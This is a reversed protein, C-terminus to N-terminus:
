GRAGKLDIVRLRDGLAARLDPLDFRRLVDPVFCSLPWDYLEAEAVDQYSTLAGKLTVTSVRPSFQAAFLAPFTGWGLGALRVEHHGYRGLWDLTARVDHTKGGVYPRDLMLAHIAYFYDSGYPELFSDEGCTNPRSEGVGRVDLAYFAAEPHAEALERVLAESRLEEDASHHSVYLVAPSGDQPPRSLLREDSLRTLVIEIGPETELVYQAFFEKPYGRPAINRLIRAYPPHEREPLKLADRLAETLPPGALRRGGVQARATEATFAFIPKSGEKAVQGSATAQLSADTEITLPPEAHGEAVGTWRNFWGYMAERNEQSYGHYTPGIFLSVREEAGLLRWLKKLRNLAEELGRADFYDREKGLLIVPKPALAALFDEHDLGLAIARPPCQETDAPLENELNRRFETVFCSPAAMTWRSDLGALWTTETGGGSNGTVGVHRPDVEPRTLLYDLARIGDWARWSGFFEGILFQQNGALLHEQVGVPVRDGYQVREGQGLPDFILVAYGQKVLGQCFSQYADIAKGNSSHGCTGVVGPFPGPRGVPLYFNASVLMGPRSEFVVKEIKYGEREVAGLVRANLPTKSPFPAFCERIRARVDAVYAEADARTRLADFRELRRRQAERLQDVFWEQVM